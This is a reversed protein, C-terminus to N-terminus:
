RHVDSPSTNNICGYSPHREALLSGQQALDHLCMIAIDYLSVGNHMM